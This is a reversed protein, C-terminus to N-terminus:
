DDTRLINRLLRQAAPTMDGSDVCMKAWAAFQPRLERIVADAVHQEYAPGTAPNYGCACVWGDRHQDIVAAIRDRLDDTMM